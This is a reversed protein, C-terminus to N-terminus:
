EFVLESLAAHRCLQNVSPGIQISEPKFSFPFGPKFIHSPWISYHITPFRHESKYCFINWGDGNPNALPCNVIGTRQGCAANRRRTPFMVAGTGEVILGYKLTANAWVWGCECWTMGALLYFTRFFNPLYRYDFITM